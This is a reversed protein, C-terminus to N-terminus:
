RKEGGEKLVEAIEGWLKRWAQQEAEPLAALAEKDRVCAINPDSQWFRLTQQLLPRNATNAGEAQARRLALDARLWDLAQRRWRTRQQEDLKGADASQGCGAAATVCAAAYRHGAKSDELLAPRDSFAGAFFGAATAYCRKPLCIKALEIQEAADKPKATGKDIAILKEELAALREAQRLWLGSPYPWGPTQTGLEHGRRYCVLSEAFRGQTRLVGGLNCHAAADDPKLRAAERSAAGAEALKGQSQLIIGLNFHPRSDNPNCRIATKYAAVAEPLKGQEKLAWGLNFHAPAFGPKCRIAQKFAAEVESWKGQELLVIGLNDHTLYDEPQLRIAEKYAAIAEPLKKLDALV